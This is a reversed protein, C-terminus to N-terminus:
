ARKSFILFWLLRLVVSGLLVAWPVWFAALVLLWSTAVLAVKALKLAPPGLLLVLYCATGIAVSLNSKPPPM